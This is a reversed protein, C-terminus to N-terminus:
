LKALKGYNKNVNENNNKNVNWLFNNFKLDFIYWVNKGELDM